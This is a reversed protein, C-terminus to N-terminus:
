LSIIVMPKKVFNLYSQGEKKDSTKILNPCTIEKFM